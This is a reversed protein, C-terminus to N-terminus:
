YIWELGKSGNILLDVQLPAERETVILKVYICLFDLWINVLIWIDKQRDM